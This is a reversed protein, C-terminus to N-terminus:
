VLCHVGRSAVHMNLHKKKKKKINLKIELNEGKYYENEIKYYENETTEYYLNIIVNM